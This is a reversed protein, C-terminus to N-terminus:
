LRGFGSGIRLWILGTWLVLEWKRFIWRLIIREDGGAKGFSRKGESKGMLLRYVARRDRNVRCAM